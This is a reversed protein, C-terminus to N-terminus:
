QVRYETSQVRSRFTEVSKYERIDYKGLKEQIYNCMEAWLRKKDANLYDTVLFEELILAFKSDVEKIESVGYKNYVPLKNNLKCILNCLSQLYSNTFFLFNNYDKKDYMDIGDNFITEIFFKLDMKGSDDIKVKYNKVKEIAKEQIKKLKEGEDYVIKAVSYIEMSTLDKELRDFYKWEPSIFYEFETDLFFERGRMGKEDDHWIFFIDIDSHEDMKGTVYSGAIMAGYIGYKGKMYQIYKEIKEELVM